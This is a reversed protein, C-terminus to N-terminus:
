RRRNALLGAVWGAAGAILLSAVPQQAVAEAAKSMGGHATPTKRVRFIGAPDPPMLFTGATIPHGRRPWSHESVGRAAM